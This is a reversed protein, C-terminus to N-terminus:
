CSAPPSRSARGRVPLSRPWGAGPLPLRRAACLLGTLEDVVERARDPTRVPLALEAAAAHIPSPILTGGRGRRREPQTVVLAVDHGAHHVAHLVPVAPAPTGFFVLRM